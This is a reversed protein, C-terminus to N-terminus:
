EGTREKEGTDARGCAACRGYLRIEYSTAEVGARRAAEALGAFLAAPLAEGASPLDRVGGCAVCIAHDHRETRADYHRGLADRGVEAVLGAAELRALARYITAQGIHPHRERVATYLEAATPHTACARLCALVERDHRGLRATAAPRAPSASAASIAASERTEGTEAARRM